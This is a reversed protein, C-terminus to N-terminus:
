ITFKEEKIKLHDKRANHKGLLSLMIFKAKKLILSSSPHHVPDLPCSPNAM